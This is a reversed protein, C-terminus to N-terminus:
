FAKGGHKYPRMINYAHKRATIEGASAGLYHLLDLIRILADCLEVHLGPYAPLKDDVAHTRLAELGESLESHILAIRTGAETPYDYFGKLVALQHVKAAITDLAEIESDTLGLSHATAFRARNPATETARFVNIATDERAEAAIRLFNIADAKEAEKRTITFGLGEAVQDAAKNEAALREETKFQATEDVALEEAALKHWDSM